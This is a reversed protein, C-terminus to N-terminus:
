KQVKFEANYCIVCVKQKSWLEKVMLFVKM